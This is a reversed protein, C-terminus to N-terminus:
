EGLKSFSRISLPQTCPSLSQYFIHRLHELSGASRMVDDGLVMRTPRIINETAITEEDTGVESEQIDDFFCFRFTELQPCASPISQILNTCGHLFSRFLTPWGEKEADNFAFELSLFALAPQYLIRYLLLDEFCTMNM